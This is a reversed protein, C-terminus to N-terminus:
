KLHEKEWTIHHINQMTQWEKKIMEAMEEASRFKSWNVRIVPIVRSIEQIFEEYAKHLNTLYELTITSECSRSRMRIRELSEEPTVDLHVILNPKRMFNAMNNFLEIYTRYDREEMLNADRLMKAFVSDEYITRDQVGGKGQWIIQQHQRFRKNLLYIQLPFSYKKMDAYFDALYENDIVPEYYVPVDLVKGLHTALTTKGAGIIGSIGLISNCSM